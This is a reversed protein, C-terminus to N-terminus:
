RAWSWMTTEWRSRSVSLVGHEVAAASFTPWRDDSSARFHEAGRHRIAALCPGDGFEYQTQDLFMATKSTAAPTVPKGARLMTISALDCGPVSDTALLAIKTQMSVLDDDGTLFRRLAERGADLGAQPFDAV